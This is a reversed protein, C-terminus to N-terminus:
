AEPFPGYALQSHLLFSQRVLTASLEGRWDETEGSCNVAGEWKDACEM